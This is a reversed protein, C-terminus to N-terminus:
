PLNRLQAPCESSRNPLGLELVLNRLSLVPKEEQRALLPRSV